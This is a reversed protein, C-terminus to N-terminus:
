QMARVAGDRYENPTLIVPMNGMDIISIGGHAGAPEKPFLWTDYMAGQGAVQKMILVRKKGPRVINYFIHEETCAAAHFRKMQTRLIQLFDDCARHAELVGEREQGQGAKLIVDFSIIQDADSPTGARNLFLQQQLNGESSGFEHAQKGETDVGTLLVCVGTLTHTVGEGIVGLAKTSIPIIDMITETRRDHKGAPILHIHIEQLRPYNPLIAAAADPNVTLIGNESVSTETGTELREIHYARMVLRDKKQESENQNPHM